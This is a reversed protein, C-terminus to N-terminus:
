TQSSARTPILIVELYRAKIVLYVNPANGLIPYFTINPHHHYRKQTTTCFGNNWKSKNLKIPCSTMWMPSDLLYKPILRPNLPSTKPSLLKLTMVRYINKLTM